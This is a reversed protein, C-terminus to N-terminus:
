IRNFVILLNLTLNYLPERRLQSGIRLLLKLRAFFNGYLITNIALHEESSNNTFLIMKVLHNRFWHGKLFDFRKFISRPKTFDVLGFNNNEHIRYLIYSESDIYVKHNNTRTIFYIFWDHSFHKWEKFNVSVTIHKLLSYISYNFVYTCGASASQFLHDFKKQPKDKRMFGFQESGNWLRLGSAYLSSKHEVLKSISRELKSPLWNDDQDAFAFYQFSEPKEVRNLLAFFNIAPIGVNQNNQFVQVNSNLSAIEAIIEMTNDTSKDDLIQLTVDVESQSLISEVQERVYRAGNYTAMLVLIRRM